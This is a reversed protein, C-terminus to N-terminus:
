MDYSSALDRLGAITPTASSAEAQRETIPSYVPARMGGAGGEGTDAPPTFGFGASTGNAHNAAHHQEGDLSSRRPATSAAVTLTAGVNRRTGRGAHAAARVVRPHLSSAADLQAAALAVLLCLRRRVPASRLGEGDRTRPM